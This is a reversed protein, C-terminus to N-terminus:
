RPTPPELPSVQLDTIASLPTVVIRATAIPTQALPEVVIADVATLPPIASPEEAVAAVVAGRPIARVAARLPDRRTPPKESPTVRPRLSGAEAVPSSAPPPPGQERVIAPAPADTPAPRMWLLAAVVAAAMMGIAVLRPMWTRHAPRELRATVRARFAADTDVNMLDRVARDIATDLEPETM